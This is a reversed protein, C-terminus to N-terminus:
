SSTTLIARTESLPEMELEERLYTEFATYWRRAERVRGLTVLLKLLDQLADEHGPELELVRELYRRKDAPEAKRSAEFLLTIVRNRLSVRLENIPKLDLGPAFPEQYLRYVDEVHRAALARELEDSDIRTNKLGYDFLYSSVGWPEITSRLLNLQVNLNNRVKKAPADPWLSIAIEERSQKLALLCLIQKLRDTVEVVKGMVRVRITGLFDLELPPIDGGRYLIAAEWGSALVEEISYYKSLEPRDPPLDKIGISWPLLREGRGVLNLLADLDEAKKGLLYRAPYHYICTDRDTNEEIIKSLKSLNEDLKTANDLLIMEVLAYRESEFGASVRRALDQDGLLRLTKLYYYMVMDSTHVDQWHQAQTLLAPFAAINKDLAAIAARAEIDILPSTKAFDTAKSFFYRAREPKAAWWSLCGIDRYQGARHHPYAELMRNVNAEQTALRQDLDGYLLWNLLILNVEAGLRLPSNKPYYKLSKEVQRKGAEYNGARYDVYASNSLFKGAQDPGVKDLLREGRAIAEYAKAQDLSAYSWCLEGLAEISSADSLNGSNSLNSPNSPGHTALALELRAVSEEYRRLTGLAAGVNLHRLATAPLESDLYADWDLLRQPEQKWISPLELLQALEAKLGVKLFAEGQLLVPLRKAENKVAERIDAQFGEFILEAIFPPLRYTEQIRQLFGTRALTETPETIAEQPLYPLAALFLLERWAADSLNQRLGALLANRNALSGTLSAVHLPLPWGQTEQWLALARANDAVLLKAEELSFALTDKRRYIVKGRKVPEALEPYSLPERSVLLVLGRVDDLFDSLAEGGTLDELVVLTPQSWLDDLIVSWPAYPPLKLVECLASQLSQEPKAFWFSRWGEGGLLGAWQAALVSKGYGYPAELWVIYGTEDPLDELLRERSVYHEITLGQNSVSSQNSV